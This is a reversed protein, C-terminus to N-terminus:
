AQEQVGSDRRLLSHQYGYMFYIALGIVTWAGMLAWNFWNMRTLLFICSLVGASCTFIAWPVRFTRPLDPSTYRLILVGACVA